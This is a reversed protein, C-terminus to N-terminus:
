RTPGSGLLRDVPTENASRAPGHPDLWRIIRSGLRIFPQEIVVYTVCSLITLPVLTVFMAALYTITAPLAARGIADYVSQLKFVLAPHNLYLSYSITGLIVPVRRALLAAPRLLLGLTIAAYALALPYLTTLPFRDDGVLGCTLVTLCGLAILSSSCRRRDIADVTLRRHIFYLVMGIAFVPLQTFVSLYIVSADAIRPDAFRSCAVYHAGALLLALGCLVIASRIGRVIHFLLPFLLYFLMEVGLTWSALVIGERWRPWLNFAFTTSAVVQEFPYANHSLRLALWAFYLPAIRLARRLYFKAVRHREGARADLTYCLTFASLVFFLTVGSWGAGVARALWRPVPVDPDPMLSVHYAIVYIAAVGRLADIVSLRRPRDGTADPNAM